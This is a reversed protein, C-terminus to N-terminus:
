SVTTIPVHAWQKGTIVRHVTASSVNMSQALATGHIGNASEARIHLVDVVTLKANGHQEGLPSRQRGKRVMDDTNDQHTGLKLHDPCICAPNDCRHMVLLGAPIPGIFELYAIRHAQYRRSNITLKGYGGRGKTEQWVWCGTIPDITIKSLLRERITKRM